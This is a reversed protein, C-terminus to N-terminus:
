AHPPTHTNEANKDQNAWKEHLSLFFRAAESPTICAKDVVQNCLIHKNNKAHGIGTVVPVGHKRASYIAKLVDPTSFQLLNNPNGGGRIICLCDSLLTARFITKALNFNIRTEDKFPLVRLHFLHSDNQTADNLEIYAGNLITKFDGLAANNPINSTIVTM